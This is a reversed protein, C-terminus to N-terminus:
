KNFKHNFLHFICYHGESPTQLFTSLDFLPDECLYSVLKLLPSLSSLSSSVFKSFQFSASLTALSQDLRMKLEDQSGVEEEKEEEEDKCGQLM